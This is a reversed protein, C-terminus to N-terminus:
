VLGYINRFGPGIANTAAFKLLSNGSAARNRLSQLLDVLVQNFQDVKSANNPNKMNYQSSVKMKGFISCSSYRLMCIDYWM